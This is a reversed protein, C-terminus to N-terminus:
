RGTTAALTALCMEDSTGDGWVVYRPQLQKLEALKSRVSADHTCTVRLLDGKTLQVPQPLLVASQDDFNFSKQDLLMRADPRGPNLEVSISRGLLHMHPASAYVLMPENVPIDCHQTDGPVPTQGKNCLFNLGGVMARAQAGTRKVLDKIAAERECLPGSETATCPLEIPAVLRVATLPKVAATGPLVRLRVTSQDLPGPKGKTSMLNYHVQLVIQSGAEIPYGVLEGILTEKGGPAWGGIWDVGTGRGGFSQFGEALGAGGFCQWGDGRAEADVSRAHEVQSPAVSYLIAHHVIEANQPLFQSGMIYSSEALKPDILFCRYEDTGAAPPVPRYPQGLGVELFREGDRLPAPPPPPAGHVHGAPTESTHVAGGQAAPAPSCAAASLIAAAVVMQGVRLGM